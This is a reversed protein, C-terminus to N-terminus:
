LARRLVASRHPGDRRPRHHCRAPFCHAQLKESSTVGANYLTGQAIASTPDKLEIMGAEVVAAIVGYDPDSAPIDSIAVPASPATLNWLKGLMKACERKTIPRNLDLADNEDIYGKSAAVCCSPMM